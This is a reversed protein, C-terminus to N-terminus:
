NLRLVKEIYSPIDSKKYLAPVYALRKDRTTELQDLLLRKQKPSM